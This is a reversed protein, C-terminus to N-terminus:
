QIVENIIKLIDDNIGRPKEMHLKDKEAKIVRRMLKQIEPPASHFPENVDQNNMM